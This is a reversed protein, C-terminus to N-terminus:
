EKKGEVLNEVATVAAPLAAAAVVTAVTAEATSKSSSGIWYGMVGYVAAKLVEAQDAALNQAFGLVHAAWLSLVVGSVVAAGILRPKNTDM